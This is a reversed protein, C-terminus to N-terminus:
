VIAFLFPLWDLVNHEKFCLAFHYLAFATGQSFCQLNERKELCVSCSQIFLLAFGNTNYM